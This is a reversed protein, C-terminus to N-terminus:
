INSTVRSTIVDLAAVVNLAAQQLKEFEDRSLYSDRDHLERNIVPNLDRLIAALEHPLIDRKELARSLVAISGRQERESIDAFRALERLQNEIKIRFLLLNTKLDHKTIELQKALQEARSATEKDSKLRNIFEITIGSVSLTVRSARRVLQVFSAASAIIGLVGVIIQFIPPRDNSLDVTRRQIAVERIGFIRGQVSVEDQSESRNTVFTRFTFVDDPNLLLPEILITSSDRINLAPRLSSPQVLVVEPIKVILGPFIFKLSSEFDDKKIPQNGSNRCTIDFVYLSSIISSRYLIKVDDAYNKELSVVPVEAELTVSFERTERQFFYYLIVPPIFALLLALINKSLFKLLKQVM